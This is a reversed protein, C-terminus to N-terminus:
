ERRSIPQFRLCLSSISQGLHYISASGTGSDWSVPEQAWDKVILNWYSVSMIVVLETM